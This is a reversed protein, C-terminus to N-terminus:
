KNIHKDMAPKFDDRTMEGKEVKEMQSIDKNTDMFAQLVMNNVEKESFETKGSAKIQKGISLIIPVSLLTIM